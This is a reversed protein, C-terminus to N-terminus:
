VRVNEIGDQGVMSLVVTLKLRGTDNIQNRLKGFLLILHVNRKKQFFLIMIQM